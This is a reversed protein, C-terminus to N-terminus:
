GWFIGTADRNIEALLPNVEVDSRDRRLAVL